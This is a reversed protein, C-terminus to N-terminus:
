NCVASSWNIIKKMEAFRDDAGLVINILYDNNKTNDIVLFLCGKAAVTFGTKSCVIEPIEGLLQDTNTINGFGPVYFEKERSINAIKPYNKLIYEAFKTLDNATSVNKPSLGTPDAFFTDKLGLDKAKQNMLDVFKQEGSYLGSGEALAYASKNSSEVLMIDLLNEVSMVDGLKVDQKMPDQSNAMDDITINDSLNYNNLVIVATMLKTLSAIPLPTDANKEFIVKDLDGGPKSLNSEVSIAAGANIDPSAVLPQYIPQIIDSATNNSEATQVAGSVSALLARSGPNPTSSDFIWQIGAIAYIFIALFVFSLLFGEISRRTNM